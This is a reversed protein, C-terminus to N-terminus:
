AQAPVVRLWQFWISQRLRGCAAQMGRKCPLNRHGAVMM